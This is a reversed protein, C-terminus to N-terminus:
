TKFQKRVCIRCIQWRELEQPETPSLCVPCKALHSRQSKVLNQWRQFAELPSTPPPTTVPPLKTLTSKLQPKRWKATSFHIDTLLELGEQSLIQNLKILIQRREFTLAQAWLSGPVAVQLVLRYIGTPQSQQAVAEGVVQRWCELIKIFRHQQQWHPRDRIQSILSSLNTLAM